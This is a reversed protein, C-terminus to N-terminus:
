KGDKGQLSPVSCVIDMLQKMADQERSKESMMVWDRLRDGALYLELRWKNFAKREKVSFSENATHWFTPPESKM